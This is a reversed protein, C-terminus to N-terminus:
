IWILQQERGRELISSHWKLEYRSFVDATTRIIINIVSFYHMKFRILLFNQCATKQTCVDSACPCFAATVAHSFINENVCVNVYFFCSKCFCDTIDTSNFLQTIFQMIIKSRHKLLM